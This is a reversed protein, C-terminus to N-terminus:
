PHFTLALGDRGLWAHLLEIRRRTREPTPGSVANELDIAILEGRPDGVAQLEDGYGTVIRTSAAIAAKAFSHRSTM